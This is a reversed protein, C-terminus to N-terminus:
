NKKRNKEGIGSFIRDEDRKSGFASPIFSNQSAMLFFCESLHKSFVRKGVIPGNYILAALDRIYRALPLNEGTGIARLLM